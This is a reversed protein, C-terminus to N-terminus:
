TFMSLSSIVALSLTHNVNCFSVQIFFLKPKGALTPSEDGKFLGTIYDLKLKGNTGYIEGEEGHSLVVLVFCDADSHDDTAVSILTLTIVIRFFTLPTKIVIM